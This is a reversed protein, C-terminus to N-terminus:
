PTPDTSEPKHYKDYYEVMFRLFAWKSVIIIILLWVVTETFHYYLAPILGTFFIGGIILFIVTILTGITGTDELLMRTGLIARAIWHDTNKPESVMYPTIIVFIIAVGVTAFSHCWVGLMLIIFAAIRATITWPSSLKKWTEEQMIKM